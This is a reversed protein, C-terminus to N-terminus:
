FCIAKIDISLIAYGYGETFMTEAQKRRSAETYTDLLDTGDYFENGRYGMM